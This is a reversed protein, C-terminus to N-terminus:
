AFWSRARSPHGYSRLQQLVPFEHPLPETMVWSELCCDALFLWPLLSLLEVLTFPETIGTSDPFFSEESDISIIGSDDTKLWNFISGIIEYIPLCNSFWFIGWVIILVTMSFCSLWRSPRKAMGEVLPPGGLIMTGKVACSFRTFWVCTSMCWWFWLFTYLRSYGNYQHDWMSRSM